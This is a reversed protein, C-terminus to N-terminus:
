HRSRAIELLGADAGAANRRSRGFQQKILRPASDPTDWDETRLVKRVVVRCRDHSLHQTFRHAQLLDGAFSEFGSQDLASHGLRHSLGVEIHPFGVVLSEVCGFKPSRLRRRWCAEALPTLFLQLRADLRLAPQALRSSIDFAVSEWAGVGVSSCISRM